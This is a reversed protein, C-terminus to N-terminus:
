QGVDKKMKSRPYPTLTAPFYKEAGCKKCVGCNNRDLIWYHVCACDSDCVIKGECEM